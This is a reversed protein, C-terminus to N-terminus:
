YILAFLGLLVILSLNACLLIRRDSYKLMVWIIVVMCYLLTVHWLSVPHTQICALPLCGYAHLVKDHMQMLWDLSVSLWSGLWTIGIGYCLMVLVGGYLLFSTFPVLVISTLIQWAQVQHFYYLVLPMTTLWASLSVSLGGWGWRGFQYVQCAMWSMEEKDYLGLKPMAQMLLPMIFVLGVLAAVSLQASIDFACLPDYILMLFITSALVDSGRTPRYSFRGLLFLTAMLAARQLSKPMGVMAAYFWLLALTALLVPWRWRTYRVRRLVLASILTLLIGLHTGSLALLHQAGALRFADRQQKTLSSRDGLLMAHMEARHAPSLESQALRQEIWLVKESVPKVAHYRVFPQEEPPTFYRLRVTTYGASLLMFNTLVVLEISAGQRYSVVSLLLGGVLLGMVVPLPLPLLVAVVSGLLWCLIPMWLSM